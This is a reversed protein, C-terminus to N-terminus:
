GSNQQDINKLLMIAYNIKILEVMKKLIVDDNYELTQNNIEPSM